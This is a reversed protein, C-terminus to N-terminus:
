VEIRVRRRGASSLALAAAAAVALGAGTFFAAGPSVNQYLLGFLLSGALVGVGNVLYYVGFGRGRSALPVLDAILAREAGETLTFPVAYAVFLLVFAPLTTVAPFVAYIVAYSLWGGILLHRRGVRDSLEGAATSFLAKVVHHAAWLLPLLGAPVGAAHAQLLLFVDSSNAVAFLAIAIMARRFPSGLSAHAPAATGEPPAPSSPPAGFTEQVAAALLVVGIAGPIVALFFIQRMSLGAAHLLALALIPGLVAGAHDLARHFGFARGRDAPRVVDSILADRPASRLGKGTRDLLRATLVVTWTGAAGILARSATALTYGAVVLPKRRQTRDSWWGALYRLFSSIADAAGEIIGIIVPTAGLTASLFVPLLPYIMESAADNLLSVLGLIIVPRPLPRSGDRM